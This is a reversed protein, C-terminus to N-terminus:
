PGQPPSCTPATLASPVGQHCKCSQRLPMAKGLVLCKVVQTWSPAQHNLFWHGVPETLTRHGLLNKCSSYQETPCGEARLQTTDLLRAGQSTYHPFHSTRLPGRPTSSHLLAHAESHLFRTEEAGEQRAPDAKGAGVTQQACGRAGRLVSLLM